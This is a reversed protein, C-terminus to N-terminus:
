FKAEWLGHVNCYAYVTGSAVFAFDAKPELGPALYLIETKNGADMAICEIYHEQVMPHPTSGVSVHITGDDKTVVPVHTEKSADTTNPEVPEM